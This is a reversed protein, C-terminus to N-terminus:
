RPRFRSAAVLSTFVPQIHPFEQETTRLTLVGIFGGSRAYVQLQAFRKGEATYRISVATAESAGAVAVAGEVKIAPESVFERLLAIESEIHSQLTTGAELPTENVVVESPFVGAEALHIGYGEDVVWGPPITQLSWGGISLAASLPTPAPAPAPAAAPAPTSFLDDVPPATAGVNIPKSIPEPEEVILDPVIRVIFVTKGASIEDGDHIEAETVRNGNLFTGNASKQDIVRGKSGKSDVAFHIGSLFTDPSIAFNSRSTRGVTLVQGEPVTILKGAMAGNKIELSLSM